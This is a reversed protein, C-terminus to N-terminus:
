IRQAIRVRTFDIQIRNIIKLLLCAGVKCLPLQFVHLMRKPALLNVASGMKANRQGYVRIHYKM